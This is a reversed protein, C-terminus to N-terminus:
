KEPVWGGIVFEQGFIVKIKLWAPSRRGPEYTSDLRKAVVGEMGVRKASQLVADGHGGLHAPTIQWAPGAITVRELIERRDTYPLNMTSRGDAYMVDFLAYWVP